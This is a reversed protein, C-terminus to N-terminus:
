VQLHIVSSIPQNVKIQNEFIGDLWNTDRLDGMVFSLKGKKKSNLLSVINKIKELNKISSNILSDIVLVDYGQNMLTICTHSGIYGLGGTNLIISM